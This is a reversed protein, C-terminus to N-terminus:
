SKRQPIVEGLTSKWYLYEAKAMRVTTIYELSKKQVLSQEDSLQKQYDLYDFLARQNERHNTVSIKIKVGNTIIGSIENENIQFDFVSYVKVQDGTFSKDSVEYKDLVPIVSLILKDDVLEFRHIRSILFAPNAAEVKLVKKTLTNLQKEITETKEAYEKHWEDTKFLKNLVNVIHMIYTSAGHPGSFHHGIPHAFHNRLGRAKNLYIKLNNLYVEDCVDDIIDVLRRDHKKGKKNKAKLAIGKEQAKLKIAMELTFLCKKLAEDFMEWHFYAHAMLYEATNYASVVDDPVKEHFYGGIVVKEIYDEQGNIEYDEWRKDPELYDKM